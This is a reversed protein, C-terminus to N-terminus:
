WTEKPSIDDIKDLYYEFGIKKAESSSKELIEYTDDKSWGEVISLACNEPGWFQIVRFIAGILSPLIPAIEHLDLAFFFKM